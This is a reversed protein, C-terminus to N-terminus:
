KREIAILSPPSNKQNVFGYEIVSFCTQDLAEAWDKVARGEEPGGPHGTYVAITIMGGPLLREAMQGLAAITSDPLTIIHKENGPLYGLNFMAAKASDELYTGIEEHGAHHLAVQPLSATKERTTAIASEQIDFGLVSGEPGVLKALFLTDHGNGVTADVVTDGPGVRSQILWQSFQVARPLHKVFPNTM